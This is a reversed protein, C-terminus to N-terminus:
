MWQLFGSDPPEGGGAATRFVDLMAHRGPGQFGQADLMREATLAASSAIRGLMVMAHYAGARAGDARVGNATAVIADTLIAEDGRTSYGRAGIVIQGVFNPEHAWAHLLAANLHTLTEQLRKAAEEGLGDYPTDGDIRM